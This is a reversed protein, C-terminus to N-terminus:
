NLLSNLRIMFIIESIIKKVDGETPVGIIYYKECLGAKQRLKLEQYFDFGHVSLNKASASEFDDIDTFLKPKKLNIVTDIFIPNPNCPWDEMPDFELFKVEPLAKQLYPKLKLPM